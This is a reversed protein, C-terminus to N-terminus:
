SGPIESHPFGDRHSDPYELTFQFAFSPFHFMETGEPFSFAM